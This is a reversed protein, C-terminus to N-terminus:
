RDLLKKLENELKRKQEKLIIVFDNALKVKNANHKAVSEPEMNISVVKNTATWQLYFPENPSATINSKVTEIAAGLDLLAQFLQEKTKIVKVKSM